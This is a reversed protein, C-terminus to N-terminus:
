RIPATSLCCRFPIDLGLANDYKLIIHIDINADDLDVNDSSRRIAESLTLIIDASNAVITEGDQPNFEVTPPTQDSTWNFEDAALNDNGANDIYSAAPVNVTVPGDATPTLTATYTTGSGSFSSLSGNSVVIDGVAFSTTSESSTFTLSLTPDNTIDGDSVGAATITM